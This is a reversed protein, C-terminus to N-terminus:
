LIKQICGKKLDEYADVIIPMMEFYEQNKIIDKIEKKMNDSLTQNTLLKISNYYQRIAEQMIPLTETELCKKLWASIDYRYTIIQYDKDKEIGESEKPMDGHLNLYFLKGGKQKLLYNHYRKLQDPQDDAYIKNEIVICRNDKDRLLIDINGGEKKEEVEIIPGIHFEVTTKSTKVDFDASEIHLQELFLNLYKCGQGHSGQVNLLEALFASHKVENSLTGIIKFINFKEGTKSASDDYEDKITKVKEFLGKTNEMKNDKSLFNGM